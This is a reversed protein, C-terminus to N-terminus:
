FARVALALLPISVGTFLISAFWCANTLDVDLDYLSPPILALFAVPMCSLIMVVKLPVGGLIRGYGLLWAATTALVPVALFRIALTAACPGPYAALRKVRLALGIAVLMCFSALPVLVANVTVYAAPRQFGALRLAAGAAMGGLACLIFPDTAVRKLGAALGGQGPGTFSRAVPFGVGFYLVEELLKYAPVMAFGEEGLLQHCVLAGVAGVNTFLGCCFFAGRERRALGMAKGAALALAGGSVFAFVGVAPLSWIGSVSLDLNWFAGCYTVPLLFFLAIKQLLLRLRPLDPPNRWRGSDALQKMGWGSLLGTAIVLLATVVREM